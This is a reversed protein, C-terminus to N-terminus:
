KLTYPIFSYKKLLNMHLKYDVTAFIFLIIALDVLDRLESPRLVLKAPFRMLRAFALTRRLVAFLFRVLGFPENLLQTLLM